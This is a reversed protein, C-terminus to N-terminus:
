SNYVVFSIVVAELADHSVGFQALIEHNRQIKKTFEPNKSLNKELLLDRLEITLDGIEDILKTNAELDLNLNENFLAIAKKTSGVVGTNILLFYSDIKEFDVKEVRDSYILSLGGRLIGIVDIGATKGHYFGELCVMEKELLEALEIKDEVGPLNDVGFKTEVM